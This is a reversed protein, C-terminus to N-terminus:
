AFMEGFMGRQVLAACEPVAQYSRSCLLPVLLEGLEQQPAKHPFLASKEAGIDIDAGNILDPYLFPANRGPMTMKSYLTTSAPLAPHCTEVDQKTM